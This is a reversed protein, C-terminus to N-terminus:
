KGKAKGGKAKAAKVPPPPPLEEPEDETLEEPPAEETPEEGDTVEDTPEDAQDDDDGTDEPEPDPVDIPDPEVVPQVKVKAKPVAKLPVVPKDEHVTVILCSITKLRDIFDAGTVPTSRETVFKYQHPGDSITYSLGEKLTVDASAMNM